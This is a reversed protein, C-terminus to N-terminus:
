NVVDPNILFSIMSLLAFSATPCYFGTLLRGLSNRRMKIIIGPFTYNLNSSVKQKITKNAVLEFQFPLALGNIFISEKGEETVTEGYSVTIKDFTLAKTSLVYTGFQIPCEHFDFPFKEFHFYCSLTLQFEEGYDLKHSQNGYLYLTSTASGGYGKIQKYDLINEFKFRPQFVLEATKKDIALGNRFITHVKCATNSGTNSYVGRQILFWLKILYFEFKGRM